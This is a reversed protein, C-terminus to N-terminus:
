PKSYEIKGYDSIQLDDDEIDTKDESLNINGSIEVGKVTLSYNESFCPDEEGSEHLGKVDGCIEASIELDVIAHVSICNNEDPEDINISVIKITDLEENQYYGGNQPGWDETYIEPCEPLVRAFDEYLINHIKDKILSEIDNTCM